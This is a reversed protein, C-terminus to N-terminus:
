GLTEVQDRLTMMADTIAMNLADIPKRGPCKEKVTEPYIPDGVAVRMRRGLKWAGPKVYVPVIPADARLAIFACGKDFTDMTTGDASRHGEPFVGFAKGENLLDIAKKIAKKDATYQTVPFTLLARFVWAGLPKKSLSSKAMFHIFRNVLCGIVVPDFLVMHNSVYIVKGKQKLAKRNLVKPLYLLLIIPKAILVAILYLM